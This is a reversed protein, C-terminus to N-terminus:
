DLDHMEKTIPLLLKKDKSIAWYKGAIFDPGWFGYKNIFEIIRLFEGTAKVTTNTPRGHVETKISRQEETLKALTMYCLFLRKTM